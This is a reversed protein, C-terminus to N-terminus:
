NRLMHKLNQLSERGHGIHRQFNDAVEMFVGRSVVSYAGEIKAQLALMDGRLMIKENRNLLMVIDNMNSVIERHLSEIKKNQREVIPTLFTKASASNITKETLKLRHDYKLLESILYVIDRIKVLLTDMFKALDGSFTNFEDTVVIYSKLEEGSRNALLLANLSNLKIMLILSEISKMFENIKLVQILRENGNNVIM